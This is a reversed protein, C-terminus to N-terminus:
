AGDEPNWKPQAEFALVDAAVSDWARKSRTFISVRPVLDDSNLLAGASVTMHGPMGTNKGFLPSGCTGCFMRTVTNGAESELEYRSVPGILRIGEEQFMAGTSHGAGTLRQCDLCHCHAVIVPEGDIEFTSAGCLCRGTRMEDDGRTM